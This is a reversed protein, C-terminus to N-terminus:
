AAPLTLEASRRAKHRWFYVACLVSALALIVIDSGRFYARPEPDVVEVPLSVTANRGAQRVEIELVRAGSGDFDVDGSFLLKNEDGRIARIRQVPADEGKGASVAFDVESDLLVEHSIRDQVLVGFSAPGVAFDGATGYLAVAFPGAQQSARLVQDDEDTSFRSLGVFGLATVAFLVLFSAAEFNRNMTSAGPKLGALRSAAAKPKLRPLELALARHGIRKGARGFLTRFFDPFCIGRLSFGGRSSLLYRSTPVVSTTGQYLATDSPMIGRATSGHGEVSEPAPRGRSLCQIAILVAPVIFALSGVVWMMAGAAAQDEQPTFGFLSPASAYSPYLIKDSFVLVASLATNQLDAIVLYPVMAWRPWQARSPWPQIVPWWFILSVFFFCAHEVLHWSSSRLALEYPAPVHWAFMVTGFLLLSVAPNTVVVGIREARPWNLFPGAFERAAFRPIGRVVPLLPGGLLILPPAVMMLMMHQLMHATLVFPSFTDLPSALAFWLSFLGLAFSGIRWAPLYPYGARRLLWAGRLYTLATLTLALTIVPPISWSRLVAQVVPQM